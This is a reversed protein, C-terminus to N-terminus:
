WAVASPQSKAFAVCNEEFMRPASGLLRRSAQIAGSSPRWCRPLLRVPTRGHGVRMVQQALGLEVALPDGREEPQMM